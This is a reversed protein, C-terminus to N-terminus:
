VGILFIRGINRAEVIVIGAIYIGRNVIYRIALEPYVTLEHPAPFLRCVAQSTHVVEAAMTDTWERVLIQCQLEFVYYLCLLQKTYKDGPLTTKEDKLVYAHPEAVTPPTCIIRLLTNLCSQIDAAIQVCELEKSGEKFMGCTGCFREFLSCLKYAFQEADHLHHSKPIWVSIDNWEAIAHRSSLLRFAANDLRRICTLSYELWNEQQHWRSSTIQTAGSLMDCVRTMVKYEEGKLSGMNVLNEYSVLFGNAHKEFDESYHRTSALEYLCMAYCAYILEVYAERAIAERASEYFRALYEMGLYSLKGGEKRYSSYFLVAFRVVSSSIHPGFRRAACLALPHKSSVLSDNILDFWIGSTCWYFQMYQSDFSSLTQDSLYKPHAHFLNLKRTM